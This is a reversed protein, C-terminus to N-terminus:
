FFFSFPQFKHLLFFFRLIIVQVAEPIDSLTFGCLGCKEFFKHVIKFVICKSFQTFKSLKV